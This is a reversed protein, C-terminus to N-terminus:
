EEVMEVCKVEQEIVYLKITQADIPLYENCSEANDIWVPCEVNFEKQLTNIIDLDVNKQMASNLSAYDVGMITPICVEEYGGNLLKNFLKWNTIKINKCKFMM